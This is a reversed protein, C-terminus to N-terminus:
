ELVRRCLRLFRHVGENILCCRHTFRVIAHSKVVDAVRLAAHANSIGLQDRIVIFYYYILWLKKDSISGPVVNRTVRPVSGFTFRHGQKHLKIWLAFDHRRKYQPFPCLDRTRGVVTSLGIPCYGLIESLKILGSNGPLRTRLRTSGDPYINEYACCYFSVHKSKLQEIATSIHTPAWCDDADLFAVFKTHVLKLAVNRAMAANFAEKWPILVVKRSTYRDGLDVNQQPSNDVVIISVDVNTQNIASDIANFLFFSNSAPIIVTIREM